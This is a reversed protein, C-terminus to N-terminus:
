ENEAAGQPKSLNRKQAYVVRYLHSYDKIRTEKEFTKTAKM